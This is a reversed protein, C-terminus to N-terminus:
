IFDFDEYQIRERDVELKDFGKLLSRRMGKPGCIYIDREDLNEIDKATLFGTEDACILHVHFDDSVLDEFVPLHVADNRKNVCYYLEAKLDPYPKEKLERAWSIFPAM